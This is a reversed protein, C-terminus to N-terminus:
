NNIIFKSVNFNSVITFATEVEKLKRLKEVTEDIKAALEPHQIRRLVQDQELGTISRNIIGEVTTM